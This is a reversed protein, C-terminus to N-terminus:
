DGGSAFALTNGDPSFAPTMNLTHGASFSKAASAGSLDKVVITHHGTNALQQYAVYRGTPHWTPSLGGETGSVAHAQAGDSDVIWLSGGREYMARTASTM